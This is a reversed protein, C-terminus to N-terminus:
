LDPLVRLPQTMELQRFSRFGSCDGVAVCVLLLNRLSVVVHDLRHAWIQQM